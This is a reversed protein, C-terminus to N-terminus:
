KPLTNVYEELEDLEIHPLVLHSEWIYKCYAWVMDPSDEYFHPFETQLKTGINPILPVRQHCYMLCNFREQYQNINM